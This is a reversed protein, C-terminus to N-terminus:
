SFSDILSDVVRNLPLLEEMLSDMTAMSIELGVKKLTDTDLSYMLGDSGVGTGIVMTLADSLHVASVLKLDTPEVLPLKALAAPEHHYRIVKTIRDPLNWKEAVRMGVLTHNIGLVETEAQVFDIHKQQALKEIDNYSPGVYQGIVTKGIDRLLAGTFALEPDVLRKKEAIHKAYVGCTLSNQWLMGKGLQYGEVEHDLALKSVIVYVISKLTNFGLIAIAEKVTSIKRSFGYAASNCLRLIQTTMNPDVRIVKGLEEANIDPDEMMHMVRLAVQPIEPLEDIKRIVEQLNIKNM